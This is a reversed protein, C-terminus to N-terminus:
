HSPTWVPNSYAWHRRWRAAAARVSGDRWGHCRRWPRSAVLGLVRPDPEIDLTLALGAVSALGAAHAAFTAVILDARDGPTIVVCGDVLHDLFTPVQAAGVVFTLADRAYASADGLLRRAGLADAVEALTPASIAPDAPVAYAPVPLPGVM